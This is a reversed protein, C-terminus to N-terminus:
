HVPPPITPNGIRGIQKGTNWRILNYLIGGVDVGIETKKNLRFYPVVMPQLEWQHNIPSRYGQAGMKVGWRDNIRWDMFGGLTPIAVYGMMAPTMFGHPATHYSGFMTASLNDNFDYTLSGSFGYQTELGRFFGYKIADASAALTLAGISQHIWVSGSEVGMLGPMTAAGMAASVGGTGWGAIEGYPIASYQMQPVRFIPSDHKPKMVEPEEWAAKEEPEKMLEPSATYPIDLKLVPTRISDRPETGSAATTATLLLAILIQKTMYTPIM